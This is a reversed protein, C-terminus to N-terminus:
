STSLEPSQPLRPGADPHPPRSPRRIFFPSSSQSAGQTHLRLVQIAFDEVEFRGPTNPLQPTPTPTNTSRLGVLPKYEPEHASKRIHAVQKLAM